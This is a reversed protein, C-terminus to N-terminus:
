ILKFSLGPEQPKQSTWRTKLDGDIALIGEQPNANALIRWDNNKPLRPRQETLPNIAYYVQWPGIAVRQYGFGADKLMAEMFTRHPREVIFAPDASFDVRPFSAPPPNNGGYDDLFHNSTITKIRWPTQERLAASLWHDAYVTKIQNASFFTTLAQLDLPNGPGQEEETPGYVFLENISWDRRDIQGTQEIRLFRAPAPAFSAEVRPYRIKDMPHTGSWFLPGIYNDVQTVTQWDSGNTSVGLRYGAPIDQHSDLLFLVKQITEIKGFDIQVYTGPIKPGRWSTGVNGDFAQSVRASPPNSSGTWLSRSLLDGSPPPQFDTYLNFGGPVAVKKFRGGISKLQVEFSPDDVIWALSFAGDVRDAQKLLNEQYPNAFVLAGGSRFNIEKGLGSQDYVRTLGNKKM